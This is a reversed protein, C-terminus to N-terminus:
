LLPFDAIQLNVMPSPASVMNETDYAFVVFRYDDPALENIRHSTSQPDKITIITTKNSSNSYALEYGAIDSLLLASGDARQNPIPWNLNIDAPQRTKSAVPEEVPDGGGDAPATVAGSDQGGSDQGSSSGSGGCGVLLLAILWTTVCLKNHNLSIM